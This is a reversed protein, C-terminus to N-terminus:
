LVADNAVELTSGSVYVNKFYGNNWQKTTSGIDRTAYADPLINQDVASLDSAVEGFDYKGTSANYKLAFGDAQASTDVDGLDALDEKGDKDMSKRIRDDNVLKKAADLMEEKSDFYIMTHGQGINVAYGVGDGDPFANLWKKIQNM